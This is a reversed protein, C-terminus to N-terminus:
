KSIYAFMRGLFYTNEIGKGKQFRPESDLNETLISLRSVSLMDGYRFANAYDFLLIFRESLAFDDGRIPSIAGDVGM